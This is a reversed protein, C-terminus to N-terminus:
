DEIQPLGDKDVFKMVTRGGHGHIREAQKANEYMNVSQADTVIWEHAVFGSPFVVGRVVIGCGSQGSVDENRQFYYERLLEHEESTAVEAQYLIKVKEKVALLNRNFCLEPSSSITEHATKGSPFVVGRAIVEGNQAIVKFQKLLQTM